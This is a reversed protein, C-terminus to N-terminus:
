KRQIEDPLPNTNWEVAAEECRKVEEESLNDFVNALAARYKGIAKEGGDSLLKQEDSIRATFLHSCVSKATWTKSSTPHGRTDSKSKGPREEKANGSAYNGFWTRVCQCHWDIYAFLMVTLNNVKELDDPLEEKKALAIATIDQAVRTILKSRTKDTGRDTTELYEDCNDLLTQKFSEKVWRSYPAM